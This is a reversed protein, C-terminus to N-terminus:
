SKARKPRCYYVMYNAPSIVALLSMVSSKIGSFRSSVSNTDTDSDATHTNSATKKFIARFVNQVPHMIYASPFFKRKIVRFGGAHLLRTLSEPTFHSVHFPLDVTIKMLEPSIKLDISGFNPVATVFLSDEKIINRVRSLFQLPYYIHELVHFTTVVDFIMGFDYRMFDACIVSSQPLHWHEVAHTIGSHSHDIGFADWGCKRAVSVFAGGGCGVDLLSGKIGAIREIYKLEMKQSGLWLDTWSAACRQTYYSDNSYKKELDDEKWRKRTYISSCKTCKAISCGSQPDHHLLKFKGSNCLYCNVTELSM